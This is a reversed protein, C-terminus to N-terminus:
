FVQRLLASLGLDCYITHFLVNTGKVM